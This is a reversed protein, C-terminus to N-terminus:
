RVSAALHLGELLRHELCARPAVEFDNQRDGPFQAVGPTVPRGLVNQALDDRVNRTVGEGQGAQQHSPRNWRLGLSSWRGELTWVQHERGAVRKEGRARDAPETPREIRHVFGLSRMAVDELVPNKRSSVTILTTTM